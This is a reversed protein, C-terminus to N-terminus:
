REEGSIKPNQPLELTVNKGKSVSLFEILLPYESLIRGLRSLRELELYDSAGQSSQALATKELKEKLANQYVTYASQAANYLRTDPIRLEDIHLSSIIIGPYRNEAAIGRLLETDSVSAELVFSPNELAKDLVFRATDRAINETEGTLYAHLEDQSLSGSKEFHVPLAEPAMQANVTISFRYSFDPKGELLNSYLDASPLSGSIHKVTKVPTNEFVHIKANTPLLLEWRWDFRGSQIVREYVGGTKSEMVGYNGAPIRFPVWGIFFVAAACLLLIILSVISKKKM